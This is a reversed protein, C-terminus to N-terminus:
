FVLIKVISAVLATRNAEPMPGHKKGFMGKSIAAKHAESMPGRKKGLQGKSSAESMKKKIEPKSLAVKLSESIKQKHEVSLLKGLQAKSMAKKHAESFPKRKKGFRSESLAKKHATSLLKGLLAKSIAKRAEKTPVGGDGGETKNYGFKSNSSQALYIALKEVTNLTQKTKVTIPVWSYEFAQEGHKNFSSQLHKNPHLNLKLTNYHTVCRKPIHSDKGIYVKGNALSKIQYIGPM